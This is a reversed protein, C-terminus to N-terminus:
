AIDWPIMRRELLYIATEIPITKFGTQRYGIIQSASNTM